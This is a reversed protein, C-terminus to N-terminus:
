RAAGRTIGDMQIDRRVFLVYHCFIVVVPYMTVTMLAQVMVMDAHLLEPVFMSLILINSLSIIVVIISVFGWEAPFPMESSPSHRTRLFEAGLFVLLSWLGPPQMLLFDSLFLVAFIMVPHLTLPQRQVWAFILCMLFDPGPIARPGTDVALLKLFFLGAALGFFLLAHGVQRTASPGIM